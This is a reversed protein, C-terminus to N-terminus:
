GGGGGGGAPIWSVGDKPGAPMVGMGNDDDWSYTDLYGSGSSYLSPGSGEPLLTQYNAPDVLGFPDSRNIPNNRCYRYLNSRDGWFGIPDPQLFRGIDPSYFRNRLDYLGLDGYWLQGTFYHRIDYASTTRSSGDPEYIMPTGDLDYRYWELLGTGDALATTSGSADHYCWYAVWTVGNMEALVGDPGYWSANTWNNTAGYQIIANWGDYISMSRSLMARGSRFSM